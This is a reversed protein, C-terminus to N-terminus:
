SEENILEWLTLNSVERVLTEYLMAAVSTRDEKRSIAELVEGVTIKKTDHALSFGGRSGRISKLIEYKVLGSCIQQVYPKSFGTIVCLKTITISKERIVAEIIKFVVTVRKPLLYSREEIREKYSKM